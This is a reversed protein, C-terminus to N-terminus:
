VEALGPCTLGLKLRVSRIIKNALWNNKWHQTIEPMKREWLLIIHHELKGTRPERKKVEQMMERSLRDWLYFRVQQWPHNRCRVKEELCPKIGPCIEVQTQLHKVLLRLPLFLVKIKGWLARTLVMVVAMMTGVTGAPTTHWGWCLRGRPNVIKPFLLAEGFRKTLICDKRTM